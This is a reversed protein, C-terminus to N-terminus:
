GRSWIKRKGRQRREELEVCFGDEEPEDRPLQAGPIDEESLSIINQFSKNQKPSFSTSPSVELFELSAAM